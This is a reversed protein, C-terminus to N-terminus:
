KKLSENIADYAEQAEVVKRNYKVWFKSGKRHRDRRLTYDSIKSQLKMLEKTEKECSEFKDTYYRIFFNKLQDFM